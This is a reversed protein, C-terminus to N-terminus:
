VNRETLTHDPLTLHTEHEDVYRYSFDGRKNWDFIVPFWFCKEPRLASGLSWLSNSWKNALSQTKQLITAYIDNEEGVLLLGSDDVYM